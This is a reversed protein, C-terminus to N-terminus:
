HLPYQLQPAVHRDGLPPPACVCVSLFCSQTFLVSLLRSFPHPRPCRFPRTWCSVPPRVEGKRVARCVASRKGTGVRTLFPPSSASPSPPPNSSQGADTPLRRCQRRHWRSPLPLFGRALRALLLWRAACLSVTRRGRVEEGERHHGQVM